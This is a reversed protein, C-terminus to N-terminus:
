LIGFWLAGAGAGPFSGGRNRIMLRVFFNLQCFRAAM